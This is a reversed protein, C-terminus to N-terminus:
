RKKGEQGTEITKDREHKIEMDKNVTQTLIQKEEPKVDVEKEVKKRKFFNKIKGLDISIEDDKDEM